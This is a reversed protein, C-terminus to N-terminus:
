HSKERTPPRSFSGFCRCMHFIEDRNWNELWMVGGDLLVAWIFRLSDVYIFMVIYFIVNATLFLTWHFKLCNWKIIQNKKTYFSLRSYSWRERWGLEINEVSIGCLSQITELAATESRQREKTRMVCGDFFYGKVTVGSFANPFSILFNMWSDGSRPEHAIPWLIFHGKFGLSFSLGIM